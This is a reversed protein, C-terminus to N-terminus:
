ISIGYQKAVTDLNMGKSQYLRRLESVQQKHSKGQLMKQASQWIQPNESILQQMVQQNLMGQPNNMMQFMQTVTVRKEKM